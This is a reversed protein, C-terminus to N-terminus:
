HYNRVDLHLWVYRRLTYNDHDLFKLIDETLSMIVTLIVFNM